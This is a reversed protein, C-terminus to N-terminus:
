LTFNYSSFLDWFYFEFLRHRQGWRSSCCTWIEDMMRFDMKIRRSNLFYSCGHRRYVKKIKNKIEIVFDRYENRRYTIIEKIRHDFSFWKFFNTKSKGKYKQSFKSYNKLNFSFTISFFLCNGILKISFDTISYM